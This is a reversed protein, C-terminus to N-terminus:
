ADCYQAAGELFSKKASQSIPDLGVYVDLLARALTHTRMTVPLEGDKAITLINKHPNWAFELQSGTEFSTALSALLSTFEELEADGAALRTKLSDNIATSLTKSDVNRAFCLRLDCSVTGSDIATIVDHASAAHANIVDDGNVYLGVAYVAFLGFKYRYLLSFTHSSLISLFPSLM